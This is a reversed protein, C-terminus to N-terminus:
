STDEEAFTLLWNEAATVDIGRSGTAHVVHNTRDTVFALPFSNDAHFGFRRLVADPLVPPAAFLDTESHDTLIRDLLAVLADEPPSLLPVVDTLKTTTHGAARSQGVVIGAVPEGDEIALYTSYSHDPNGFRWEYFQEDRVAHIGAPVSERYLDALVSEPTNKRRKVTVSSPPSRRRDRLRYYGRVFPTALSSGLQITRRDTQARALSAPDEVRYYTSREPLQEWGFKRYGALARDNPFTFCLWDDGYQDLAVESMRTFLGQRRHDPHVVLDGAQLGIERDGGVSVPLAFLPRAGVLEDDATAVIMPVQDTYPNEAYKWDFWGEDAPEDMVLSFLSLFGERDGPEYPRVTYQQRESVSTTTGLTALLTRVAGTEGV